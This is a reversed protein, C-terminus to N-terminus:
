DTEGALLRDLVEKLSVFVDLDNRVAGSILTLLDAARYGPEVDEILRWNKRGIAVQIMLQKTENNDIPMLGDELNVLLPEFQNRPYTRVLTTCDSNFLRERKQGTLTLETAPIPAFGFRLSEM